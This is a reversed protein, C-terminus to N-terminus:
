GKRPNFRPLPWVNIDPDTKKRPPDPEPDVLKKVFQDAPEDVIYVSDSGTFFVKCRERDFPYIAEIYDTNLYAVMKSSNVKILKMKM